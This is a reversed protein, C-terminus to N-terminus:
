SSIELESSIKTERSSRIPSHGAATFSREKEDRAIVVRMAVESCGLIGWKVPYEVFQLWNNVFCWSGKGKV